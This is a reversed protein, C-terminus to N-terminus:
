PAVEVTIHDNTYLDIASAIRLAERAVEPAPLVSHQVLARAAALALPGGSGIALVGDDPTIVEGSGSLLLLHERDAVIMMAELHRLARDTRWDRALEVAARELNGAFEEIKAEFRTFLALADAVSGAFGALVRGGALRRLKTAGHKLVTQGFTV